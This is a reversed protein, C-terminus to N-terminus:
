EVSFILMWGSNFWWTGSNMIKGNLEDNLLSNARGGGVWWGPEGWARAFCACVLGPGAQGRAAVGGWCGPEGWALVLGARDLVRALDLPM